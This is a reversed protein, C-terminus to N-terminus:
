LLFLIWFHQSLKVLLVCRSDSIVLSSILPTLILDVDQVNEGIKPHHALLAVTSLSSHGGGHDHLLPVLEIQRNLLVVGVGMVIDYLVEELNQTSYVVHLKLLTPLVWQVLLNKIRIKVRDVHVNQVFVDDQHVLQGGDPTKGVAPSEANVVLL